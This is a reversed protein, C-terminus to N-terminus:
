MIKELKKIATQACIGTFVGTVVSSIVLFLFYYAVSLESTILVAAIIQGFNHAFAGFVSIAWINSKDLFSRLTAMVAFSLVGGFLSFVLSVPQGFLLSSLFIRILLVAFAKKTGIIYICILTIVNSLGLKVGPVPVIPPILSELAYLGLSLAAMVSVFVMSSLKKEKM